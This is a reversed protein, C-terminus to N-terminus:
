HEIRGIDCISKKSCKKKVFIVVFREAHLKPVVNDVLM